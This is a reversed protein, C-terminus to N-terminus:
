ADSIGTEPDSQESLHQEDILVITSNNTFLAVRQETECWSQVLQCRAHLVDPDSFTFRVSGCANAPGGYLDIVLENGDQEAGLIRLDHTINAAM